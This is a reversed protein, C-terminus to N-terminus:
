DVWVFRVKEGARKQAFFGLEASTITAIRPYGGTVPGDKMLVIPVGSNSLQLTGTITGSSIIETKRSDLISEGELRYGMRNSSKGITFESNVLRARERESFLDFEPGKLISFAAPSYKEISSDFIPKLCPGEIISVEDGKQLLRGYFGGFEGYTYTSKSGLLLPVDIKGKFLVYGFVGKAGGKFSIVDGSSAETVCNLAVNQTNLQCNFDAGAVLFSCNQTVLLKPGVLTFELAAESIPNGLLQNGFKLALVDMAGSTPIGFDLGDRRGFDQITTSLGPNLVKFSM